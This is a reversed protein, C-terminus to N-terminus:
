RDSRAPPDIILYQGSNSVYVRQFISAPLLGVIRPSVRPISVTPTLYSRGGIRLRLTQVTSASAGGAATLIGGGSLSSSAGFQIATETGSDLIFSGRDTEVTPCGDVMEFQTRSGGQPEAAGFVIRHGAFDLLYDFHSLFEQGLVGKISPSFAHIAELESFLFEQNSATAPGLTVDAVHGAPVLANGTATAFEVRFTPKLELKRAIAAELQNTQAGTDLLFRFPGHGNLYVGDVIPRGALISVKLSGDAAPQAKANCPAANSLLIAAPIM